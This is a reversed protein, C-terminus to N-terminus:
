LVVRPEARLREYEDALNSVDELLAGLPDDLEDGRVERPAGIMRLLSRRKSRWVPVVAVHPFGGGILRIAHEHAIAPDTFVVLRADGDALFRQKFLWYTLLFRPDREGKAAKGLAIARAIQITKSASPTFRGGEYAALTAPTVGISRAAEAQSMDAGERMSRITTLTM